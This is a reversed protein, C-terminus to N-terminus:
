IVPICVRARSGAVGVKETSLSKDFDSGWCLEQELGIFTNEKQCLGSQFPLGWM